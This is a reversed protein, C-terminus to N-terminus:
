PSVVGMCTMLFSDQTFLLTMAAAVELIWHGGGRCLGPLGMGCEIVLIIGMINWELRLELSYWVPGMGLAM